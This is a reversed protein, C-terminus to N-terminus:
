VALLGAVLLPCVGAGPGLGRGSMGLTGEGWGRQSWVPHTYLLCEIKTFNQTRSVSLGWGCGFGCDPSPRM